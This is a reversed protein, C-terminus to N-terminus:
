GADPVAALDRCECVGPLPPCCVSGADGADDGADDQALEGGCAALLLGFLCGVVAGVPKKHM